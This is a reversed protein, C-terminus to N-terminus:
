EVAIMGANEIPTKHASLMRGKSAPTSRFGADVLVM